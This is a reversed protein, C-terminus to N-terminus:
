FFVSSSSLLRESRGELRENGLNATDEDKLREMKQSSEEGKKKRWKGREKGREREREKKRNMQHRNM